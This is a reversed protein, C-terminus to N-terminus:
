AKSEWITNKEENENLFKNFKAVFDQANKILPLNEIKEKSEQTIQAIADAANFNKLGGSHSYIGVFFRDPNLSDEHMAIGSKGQGSAVIDVGKDHWYKVFKQVEFNHVFDNLLKGDWSSASNIKLARFEPSNNIPTVNM